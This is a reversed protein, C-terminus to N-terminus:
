HRERIAKQLSGKDEGKDLQDVAQNMQKGLHDVAQKREKFEIQQSSYQTQAAVSRQQYKARESQTKAIAAMQENWDRDFAASETRMESKHEQQQHYTLFILLAVAPITLGVIKFLGNM